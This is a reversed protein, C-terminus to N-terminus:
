YVRRYALARFGQRKIDGMRTFGETKKRDFKEAESSPLAILANGGPRLMRALDEWLAGM